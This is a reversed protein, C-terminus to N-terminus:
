LQVVQCTLIFPNIASMMDSSSYGTVKGIVIFATKLPSISTWFKSPVLIGLDSVSYTDVSSSIALTDRRSHGM